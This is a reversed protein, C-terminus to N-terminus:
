RRHKIPRALAWRKGPPKLGVSDQALDPHDDAGAAVLRLGKTERIGGHSCAAGGIGGQFMDACQHLPGIFRGGQLRQGVRGPETGGMQLAGKPAAVAHTGGFIVTRTAEVLELRRQASAGRHRVRDIVGAETRAAADILM